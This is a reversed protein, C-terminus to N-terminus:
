SLVRRLLSAMERPLSGLDSFVLYHDFMKQPEGHPPIAIQIIKIGARQLRQVAKRTHDIAETGGYNHAAPIGDSLVFMIIEEARGAKKLVERGIAELAVGDRNDARAKISGLSFRRRRCPAYYRFIQTTGPVNVDATHGYIYLDVTRM